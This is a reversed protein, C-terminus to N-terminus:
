REQGARAKNGLFRAAIIITIGIPFYLISHSWFGYCVFAFGVSRVVLNTPEAQVSMWKGLKTEYLHSVNEGWVLVTGLVSAGFIALLAFPLNHAWLFYWGILVGLIDTSLKLPHAHQIMIREAFGFDTRTQV